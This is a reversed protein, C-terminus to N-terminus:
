APRTPWRWAPRAIIEELLTEKISRRRDYEVLSEHTGRPPPMRYRHVAALLECCSGTINRAQALWGALVADRDAARRPASASAALKWFQAM